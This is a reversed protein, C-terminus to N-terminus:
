KKRINKRNTKEEVIIYNQSMQEMMTKIILQNEIFTHCLKKHLALNKKLCKKSCYSAHKCSLCVIKVSKDILKCRYCVTTNNRIHSTYLKMTGIILCQTFCYFMRIENIYSEPSNIINNGKKDKGIEETILEDDVKYSEVFPKIHYIADTLSLVSLEYYACQAQCLGVLIKYLLTTLDSIPEKIRLLEYLARDFNNMLILVYVQTFLLFEFLFLFCETKQSKKADTYLQSSVSSVEEIIISILSVLPYYLKKSYFLNIM